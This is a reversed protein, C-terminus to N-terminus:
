DHAHNITRRFGRSDFHSQLSKGKKVDKMLAEIHNKIQRVGYARQASDRAEKGENEANKHYGNIMNELLGMFEKGAESTFFSIYSDSQLKRDIM